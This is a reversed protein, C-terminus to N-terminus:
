RSGSNADIFSRLLVQRPAAPLDNVLFFVMSRATFSPTGDPVRGSMVSMDARRVTHLIVLSIGDTLVSTLIPKDEVRQCLFIYPVFGLPLKKPMRVDMGQLKNAEGISKVDVPVPVKTERWSSNTTPVRITRVDTTSYQISFTDLTTFLSGDPAEQNARLVIMTKRDLWFNRAPLEANKPSAALFYTQRGAVLSGKLMEFTYNQKMLAARKSAQMEYRRQSAYEFVQKTDPLYDHVLKTDDISITGQQTLPELVISRSTGSRDM